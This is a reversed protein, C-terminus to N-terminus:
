PAQSIPAQSDWSQALSTSSDALIIFCTSGVACGEAAAMEPNIIMALDFSKRFFDVEKSYEPNRVRAITSCHGAKRAILCSLLNVEDESTVAIMLDAGEIGEDKMTSYSAGNGVIGMVDYDDVADQVFRANQDIVTINHEEKSLHEVLATGVSGCGVIIIQM